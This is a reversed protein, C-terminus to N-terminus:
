RWCPTKTGRSQGAAFPGIVFCVVSWVFLCALLCVFLYVFLYSVLEVNTLHVYYIIRGLISCM